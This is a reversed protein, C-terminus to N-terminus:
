FGAGKTDPKKTQISMCWFVILLVGVEASKQQTLEIVYFKCATIQQWTKLLHCSKETKKAV